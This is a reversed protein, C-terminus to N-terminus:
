VSIRMSVRAYKTKKYNIHYYFSSITNIAINNPWAKKFESVFSAKTCALTIKLPLVEYM